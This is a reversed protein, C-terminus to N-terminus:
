GGKGGGKFSSGFGSSRSRGTITGKAAHGVPRSPASFGMHGPASVRGPVGKTVTEGQPTVVQGFNASEYVTHPRYIRNGDNDIMTNPSTDAPNGGPYFYSGGYRPRYGYYYGSASHSSGSSGSSAGGYYECQVGDAQCEAQTKYVPAHRDHEAKAARMQAACQEPTIAPSKPIAQPRPVTEGGVTTAAQTAQAAKLKAEYATRQNRADAECQAQNEYFLAPVPPRQDIASDEDSSCGTVLQAAVLASVTLYAQVQRRRIARPQPKGSPSAPSNM